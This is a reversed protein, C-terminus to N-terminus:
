EGGELLDVRYRMAELATDRSMLPGTNLTSLVFPGHPDGNPKAYGHWAGPNQQAAAITWGKYDEFHYTKGKTTAM